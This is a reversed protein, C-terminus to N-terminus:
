RDTRGIGIFDALLPFRGRVFRIARRYGAAILVAPAIFAIAFEIGAVIQGVGGDEADVGLIADLWIGLFLLATLLGIYILAAGLVPIVVLAGSIGRDTVEDAMEFVPNVQETTITPPASEQREDRKLLWYLGYAAALAAISEGATVVNLGTEGGAIGSAVLGILGGTGLIVLATWALGRLMLRLM